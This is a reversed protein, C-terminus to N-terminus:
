AFIMGAMWTQSNAMARTKDPSLPPDFQIHKSLIKPPAAFVVHRARFVEDQITRVEIYPKDEHSNSIDKMACTESDSKTDTEALVLSCSKVPTSLHINKQPITENLKRILQVAGGCFRTSEPDGPQLFTEM